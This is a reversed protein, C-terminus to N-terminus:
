NFSGFKGIKTDFVAVMSSSIFRKASQSVSYPVSSTEAKLCLELYISGDNKWGQKVARFSPSDIGSM